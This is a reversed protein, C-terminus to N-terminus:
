VMIIKSKKEDNFYVEAYQVGGLFADFVIGRVVEELNEPIGHSFGSEIFNDVYTAVDEKLKDDTM